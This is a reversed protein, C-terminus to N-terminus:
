AASAHTMIVCYVLRCAFLALTPVSHVSMCYSSYEKDKCATNLRLLSLQCGALPLGSTEGVGM